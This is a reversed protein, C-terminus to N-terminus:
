VMVSRQENKRPRGRKRKPTDTERTVDAIVEKREAAEEGFVEIFGCKLLRNRVEAVPYIIHGERNLFRREAGLKTIRCPKSM